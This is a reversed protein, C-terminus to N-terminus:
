VFMGEDIQGLMQEVFRGGPETLLMDLPPRGDLRRAPTRLWRLARHRDGLVSEAISIVRVIRFARESEAQSLPQRRSECHRLRRRSIILRYVEDKSLGCEILLAVVGPSLGAEVLRVIKLESEVTTGLWRKFSERLERAALIVM